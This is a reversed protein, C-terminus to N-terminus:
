VLPDRESPFLAEYERGIPYSSEQVDEWMQEAPVPHMELGALTMRLWPISMRHGQYWGGHAIATGVLGKYYDKLDTDNSGSAHKQTLLVTNEQPLEETEAAGPNLTIDLAWPDVSVNSLRRRISGMM